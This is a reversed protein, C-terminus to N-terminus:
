GGGRELVACFMTDSDQAPSGLLQQSRLRFETGSELFGGVLAENEQVFFSCTAYILKGGPRVMTAANGLLMRQLRNLEDLEGPRLRFRADPNRRWTGSASCPADVLVRDFGGQCEVDRGFHPVATGEWPIVRIIDRLHSRRARRELDALKSRSRDSAYVAGQNAMRSAIGLTKGGSGACCDWVVEGPRSDVLAAIQQSAFDQVEFLGERFSQLEYVSTTGKVCLSSGHAEVSFAQRQLEAVVQAAAADDRLRLWLPSPRGCAEIFRATTQATWASTAARQEIAARFHLPIGAWLMQPALGDAGTCAMQLAELMAPDGPHASRHAAPLGGGDVRSKIISLFRNPNCKRWLQTLSRTGDCREKFRQLREAMEGQLDERALRGTDEFVVFAALYGLRLAAFLEAALRSRAGPSMAPGQGHHRSLWSDLPPLPRESIYQRWLQILLETYDIRRAPRRGKSHHASQTPKKPM